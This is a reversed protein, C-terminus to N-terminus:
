NGRQQPLASKRAGLKYNITHVAVIMLSGLISVVLEGKEGLYAHGLWLPSSLVALGILGSVALWRQRHHTYGIALALVGCPVVFFLMLRHFTEDNLMTVGALSPIAILLIPTLLCHVVCLSSLFIALKDTRTQLKPSFNQMPSGTLTNRM